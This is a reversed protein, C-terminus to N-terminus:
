RSAGGGGSFGGGFHGGSSSGGSFGSGGYFGGGSSSNGDIIIYCFVILIICFLIIFIIEVTTLEESTEEVLNEELGQIDIEYEEAIISIVAQVTFNTASTYDDTERYPVFYKDLINGCKSDNLIGELGRGIELRVREDARSILLLVGNDEDSKGIGLTNFLENAYTEISLNLLSDVTIVAFETGTKEELQILLDNLAKEVDNDIINDEDYIYVNEKVTPTPIEQVLSCGGLFSLLINLILIGVVLLLTRKKNLIFGRRESLLRIYIYLIFLFNIIFLIVNNVYFHLSNSIYEPHPTNKFNTQNIIKVFDRFFSYM